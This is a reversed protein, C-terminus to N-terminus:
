DYGIGAELDTLTENLVLLYQVLFDFFEEILIKEEAFAKEFKPSMVAPPFTQARDFDILVVRDTSTQVLLHRPEIDCHLIPQAHIEQVLDLFRRKRDPSFTTLDMMQLDPIYELLIAAPPYADDDFPHLHPTATVPLTTRADNTAGYYQPM